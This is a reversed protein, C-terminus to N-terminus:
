VQVFHLLCRTTLDSNSISDSQFTIVFKYQFLHAFFHDTILQIDEM